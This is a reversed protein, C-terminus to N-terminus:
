EVRRVDDSGVGLDPRGVDGSRPRSAGVPPEDDVTGKGLDDGDHLFRRDPVHDQHVVVLDLLDDLPEIFPSHGAEHPPSPLGPVLEEINEPKFSLLYLRFCFYWFFFILTLM